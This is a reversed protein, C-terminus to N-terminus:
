AEKLTMHQYYMEANEKPEKCVVWRTEDPLEEKELPILYDKEFGCREYFRIAHDNNWIVELDFHPIKLVDRGWQILAKLAYEMMRPYGAKVGKLVSDVEATQSDYRFGAFGIHGVNIGNLDQIMFTIRNNNEIVLRKLWGDTREDTVVFRAPSLSPNEKRWKSFSQVCGPITAHYDATIPRLFGMIQMEDDLIPIMILYDTKKKRKYLDMTQIVHEKDM